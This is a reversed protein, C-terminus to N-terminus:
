DNFWHHINGEDNILHVHEPVVKGDVRYNKDIRGIINGEKDIVNM